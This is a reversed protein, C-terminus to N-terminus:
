NRTAFYEKARLVNDLIAQKLETTNSFKQESRDFKLIRVKCFKGYADEQFDFLHSEVSLPQSLGVTPKRGINTVGQYVNGELLIEAFYVGNPPLLKDEKPYLNLTPLGMTRGFKNGTMIIGSVSYPEGLLRTVKEMQGLRVEERIYSSSIVKGDTDCIKSIFEVEFDNEDAMNKLLEANGQGKKGFSVDEGAVIYAGNMKHLLFDEVYVRPEVAATQEHFPYEVLYDIGMQEFVARKEEKTSLEKLNIQKFFAEPSPEFTFVAAKLGRKKADLVKQLLVKHGKHIGDFKGIAIATKEEIQFDTTGQIVKVEAM